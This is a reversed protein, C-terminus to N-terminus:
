LLEMVGRVDSSHEIERLMAMARWARDRPIAREACAMFKAALQEDSAPREPYGRAGNASAALVRGDM